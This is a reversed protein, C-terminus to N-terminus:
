DSGVMTIALQNTQKVRCDPPLPAESSPPGGAAGPVEL